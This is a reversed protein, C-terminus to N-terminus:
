LLSNVETMIQDFTIEGERFSRKGDHLFLTAPIAGSWRSEVREIWAGGRPTITMIVEGRVTHNGLFPLLRSEKQNPFDLSAMIVKVPKQRHVTAVRNFEPIEKVCPLCWTAWFNVIFITDSPYEIRKVLDEIAVNPVVRKQAEALGFAVFAITIFLIKLM